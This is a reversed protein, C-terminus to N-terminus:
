YGMAPRDMTNVYKSAARRRESEKKINCNYCLVQLGPPYDHARVWRYINPGFVERHQKGDNQIHDLCLVDMDGQGCHLCVANGDSYMNMASEKFNQTDKWKQTRENCAKNYAADRHRRERYYTRQYERRAEDIAM